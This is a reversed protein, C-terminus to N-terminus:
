LLSDDRKEWTHHRIKRGSSTFSVAVIEHVALSEKELRLTIERSDTDLQDLAKNMAALPDTPEQIDTPPVTEFVDYETEWGDEEWHGLSTDVETGYPRSFREVRAAKQFLVVNREDSPTQASRYIIGDIPVLSSTALFDAVAQTTLYDLAEDDPMIARTMHEGLIKFFMAREWEKGYKPDFISGEVQINGLAALDLLQIPRAITFRGSVVHSGVPPRIEALATDANTAGYFVSIGRANMRGAMALEAPPSGLELALDKLAEKLKSESQFV